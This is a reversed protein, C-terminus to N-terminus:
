SDMCRNIFSFIHKKILADFTEINSQVQHNRASVCQSIHHLIRFPDNYAVRLRRLNYKRYNCCLHSGYFPM